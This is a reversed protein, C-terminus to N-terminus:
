PARQYTAVTRCSYNLDPEGGGRVVNISANFPNLMLQNGQQTVKIDAVWTTTSGDENLRSITTGATGDKIALPLRETLKAFKGAVGHLPYLRMTLTNGDYQVTKDVSHLGDGSVAASQKTCDSTAKILQYTAAGAPSALSLLACSAIVKLAKM